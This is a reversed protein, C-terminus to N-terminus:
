QIVHRPAPAAFAVDTTTNYEQPFKQRLLDEVALLTSHEDALAVGAKDLADRTNKGISGDVNGLEFGLRVLGFQLAAAEQNLGFRDVRVGISLIGSASMAEYPKMNNAKGKAYYDYVINHSGRCDFHWAESLTSKPQAIIPFFGHAKAIPWFDKLPMKLNDLDLDMARGAEHMSGGPPPSFAKKKHNVFDMHSQLQMDYSRFLDSLYLHGGKAEVEQAIQNIADRTDPTCSAMRKPLLLRKGGSMYVSLIQMEVLPSKM